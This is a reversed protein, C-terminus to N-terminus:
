RPWDYQCAASKFTDCTNGPIAAGNAAPAFVVQKRRCESCKNEGEEERRIKYTGDGLAGAEQRPLHVVGYQGDQIACSTQQSFAARCAAEEGLRCRNKNHTHHM